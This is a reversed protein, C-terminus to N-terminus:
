SGSAHTPWATVHWVWDRSLVQMSANAAILRDLEGVAEGTEMGQVVAWLKKKAQWM